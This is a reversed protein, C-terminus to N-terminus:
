CGAPPNSCIIVCDTLNHVVASPSGAPMAPAHPSKFWYFPRIALEHLARLTAVAMLLWYIPLLAQQLVLNAQRTRVLGVITALLTSLYGLVMIGAYIAPWGQGDVLPAGRMLRITTMIILGTHLLPAVIMGLVLLEFSIAPGLGMERILLAPNRNHVIFTQMWGKM